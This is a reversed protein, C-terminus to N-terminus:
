SLLNGEDDWLAQENRKSQDVYKVNEYEFYGRPNSDYNLEFTTNPAFQIGVDPLRQADPMLAHEWQRTRPTHYGRLDLIRFGLELAGLTAATAALALIANYARNRSRNPIEVEM